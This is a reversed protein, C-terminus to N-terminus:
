PQPVLYPPSIEVVRGAPDFRLRIQYPPDGGGGGSIGGGGGGKGLVVVAILVVFFIVLMITLIVGPGGEYRYIWFTEAGADGRIIQDPDGLLSSVEDMTMGPAVAAGYERARELGSVCGVASLILCASLFCSVPRWLTGM